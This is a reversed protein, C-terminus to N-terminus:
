NSNLIIEFILQNNSISIQIIYEKKEEDDYANLFTPDADQDVNSNEATPIEADEM